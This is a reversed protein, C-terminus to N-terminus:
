RTKASKGKPVREEGVDLMEKRKANITKIMKKADRSAAAIEKLIGKLDEADSTRTRRSIFDDFLEEFTGVYGAVREETFKGTKKGDKKTERKEVIWVCYSDGYVTYKGCEIKM